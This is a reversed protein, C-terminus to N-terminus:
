ALMKIGRHTDTHTHKNANSVPSGSPGPPGRPGM